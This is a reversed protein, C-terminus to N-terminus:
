GNLPNNDGWTGNVSYDPNAIIDEVTYIAGTLGQQEKADILYDFSDELPSNAFSENTIIIYSISNSSSTSQINPYTSIIEPNDVFTSIQHIDISSGRYSPTPSETKTTIQISIEPCYYLVTETEDFHIPYINLYLISYGRFTHIGVVSYGSFPLTNHQESPTSLITSLMTSPNILGQSSPLQYMSSSTISLQDITRGYPLLIKLPRVPMEVDHLKKSHHLNDIQYQILPSQDFINIKISPQNFKMNMQISDFSYSSSISAQFYAGASTSFLLIFCILFPTFLRISM